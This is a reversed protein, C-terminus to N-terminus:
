SSTKLPLCNKYINELQEVIRDLGFKERVVRIGEKGFKGRLGKDTLIKTIAHKLKDKDYEVVCGIKKVYDAIGCRDTLIVPTGCALAELVTNSFTEYFSPLVYVDTDVFAKLKNEGYLPGTILIRDEIKLDKIQKKLNSLFGDDPGVIVLKVNDLRKTLDAFARVLLDIGKIKHIRGLSLIIKEDDKIRYKRRFEGRKPLNEYESLDIGNPVLEIKDENVSMRKYQEAETETLAIVKSADRLIKNGWVWDYLKKLRQKEMIRPLSGRAQLIYPIACKKAYHHTVVNQYSRFNHMHIIDFDKINTKLWKKMSPSYLFLALNAICKFPIVNVGKISKTYEKDFEFDTTIITVEHGHKSLEKSSYYPGIVSGGRAPTFFPIVQLIKM